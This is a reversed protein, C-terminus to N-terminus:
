SKIKGTKILVFLVLIPICLLGIMSTEEWILSPKQAITILFGGVAGGFHATHGILDNKAKMGYITYLLYGIGFLYAPIDIPIFFFNLVLGSDLLIAAYLVGIVAGSAGVARYQWDNKHVYLTFINGALLSSFYIMLFKLDNLQNLVTPAFFYLTMMNFALHALDVHLFASTLMRYHSGRQIQGINFEYKRFFSANEFGKFSLLANAVM